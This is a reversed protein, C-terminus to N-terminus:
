YDTLNFSLNLSISKKALKKTSLKNNEKLINGNKLIEECDKNVLSIVDEKKEYIRKESLHSSQSSSLSDSNKTTPTQLNPIFNEVSRDKIINKINLTNFTVKNTNPLPTASLSRLFSSPTCLAVNKNAENSKIPAISAEKSNLSRDSIISNNTENFSNDKPRLFNSSNTTLRLNRNGNSDSCRYCNNKHQTSALWCKM